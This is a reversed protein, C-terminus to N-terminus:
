TVQRSAGPLRSAAPPRSGPPGPQGQHRRPEGRGEAGNTAPVPLRQPWFSTSFHILSCSPQFSDKPRLGSQVDSDGPFSSFYLNGPGVGEPYVKPHPRELLSKSLEASNPADGVRAIGTKGILGAENTVHIRKVGKLLHSLWSLQPASTRISKDLAGCNTRPLASAQAPKKGYLTGPLVAGRFCVKAEGNWKGGQKEFGVNLIWSDSLVWPLVLLQYSPYSFLDLSNPTSFLAPQKM